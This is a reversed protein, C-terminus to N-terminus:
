KFGGEAEGAKRAGSVWPRGVVNLVQNTMGGSVVVRGGVWLAGRRWGGKPCSRGECGGLGM